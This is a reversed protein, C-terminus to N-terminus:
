RRVGLWPGLWTRRVFLVFTLLAVAFTILVTAAYELVGPWRQHAFVLQLALVLPYHVLYTWYSADVLLRLTPSERPQVSFALGLAGLTVLWALAGSLVHGLTTWQTAGTFIVLALAIAAVVFGPAWRQLSAVHARQPWVLWGFAFFLGYHAVEYPLPWFAADPRNDPHLWLGLMTPVAFLLLTPAFGLAKEMMRPLSSVRPMVAALACFFFLYILFWLHVPAFRWGAGVAYDPSMLGADFSARRLAFDCSWVIPLAVVLPVLLRKSRDVFYARQGRREYVLHSFFGSLAFFLQMRWAHLAGTVFPLGEVPSTDAVFYWPAVGPLWAYTAHYALGLLMAGARVVDLGVYRPTPQM